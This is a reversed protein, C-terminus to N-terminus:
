LRKIAERWYEINSNQMNDLSEIYFKLRDNDINNSAADYFFLDRLKNLEIHITINRMWYKEINLFSSIATIFTILASIILGINIQNAEDLFNTLGLIITACMALFLVLLKLILVYYKLRKDKQSFYNHHKLILEAVFKGEESLTEFWTYNLSNSSKKMISKMVLTLLKIFKVSKEQLKSFFLVILSIIIKSIKFTNLYLLIFSKKLLLM